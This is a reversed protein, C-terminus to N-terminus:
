PESPTVAPSVVELQHDCSQAYFGGKIVAIAM